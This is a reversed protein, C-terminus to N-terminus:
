CLIPFPFNKAFLWIVRLTPYWWNSLNCFVLISQSINQRWMTAIRLINVSFVVSQLLIAITHTISSSLSSSSYENRLPCKFSFQPRLQTCKKGRMVKWCVPQHLFLLNKLQQSSWCRIAFVNAAICNIKRTKVLFWWLRSTLTIPILTTHHKKNFFKCWLSTIHNHINM